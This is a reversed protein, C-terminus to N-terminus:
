EEGWGLGSKHDEISSKIAETTESDTVDLTDAVQKALEEEITGFSISYTKRNKFMEILEAVKKDTYEKSGDINVTNIINEVLKVTELKKDMVEDVKKDINDPAQNALIKSLAENFANGFEYMSDDMDKQIVLMEDRMAFKDNRLLLGGEEDIELLNTKVDTIQIEAVIKNGVSQVSLGRYNWRHKSPWGGDIDFSEPIKGLKHMETKYNIHKGDVTLYYDEQKAYGGDLNYFDHKLDERGGDLTIYPNRLLDGSIGGDITRERPIAGITISPVVEAYPSGGCEVIICSPYDDIFADGGELYIYENDEIDNADGGDMVHCDFIDMAHGGDLMYDFGPINELLEWTDLIEQHSNGQYVYDDAYILETILAGDASFGRDDKEYDDMVEIFGDKIYTSNDNKDDLKYTVSPELFYVKFSKFFDIITHIYKLIADHSAVGTFAFVDKLAEDSLYYSLTNIIDNMASRIMDQKTEPDSEAIIKSYYEYLIINRYKLVEDFTEAIEGNAIRYINLDYETTFLYDYLYRYLIYEDRSGCNSMNYILNDRIRKNEKYIKTIQDITDIDTEAIFGDAGLEELTFGREFFFTSHKMEVLKKVKKMDAKMNFGNVRNTLDVWLEPHYQRMWEYIDERDVVTWRPDYHRGSGNVNVRQKENIVSGGGVINRTRPYLGDDHAAPGGDIYTYADVYDPKPETPFERPKSITLEYGEFVATLCYLLIFLDSLRFQIKNSIQPLSIKIDNTDVNSDLLLGLFYVLQFNYDDMSVEMDISMYKTSEIMFDKELHQRKVEDHTDEGDWYKDEYTIDDYPIRFINDKISNDYTDGIETKIFELEYMNKLNDSVIYGGKTDVKRKKYLYYRYVKTNQDCAFIDLIDWINTYTSKYKILANLRRVLGIQYKLPIEKYFEVGNSELFYQCSRIDFIDRRIYWEPIDTIMDTYTQCLLMFIIMEEYYSSYENRGYAYSYVRRLYTTRNITYIEKFRSDVLNEVSPIFLIDWKAAQRSKYLPIKRDGIYKLYKYRNSEKHEDLVKDLIGTMELLSIQFTDYEHIPKSLDIQEMHKPDSFYSEDLYIYDDEGTDYNPLGMLARYYNNKEEYHDVYYQCCFDLLSEKDRDPVLSRDSLYRITKFSDYGFATLMEKTFPFTNYNYTDNLISLYIASEEVSEKTENQLARFENKIVIGRMIIDLNYIMEDMLPHDTYVKGNISYGM